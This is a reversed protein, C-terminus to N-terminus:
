LLHIKLLRFVQRERRDCLGAFISESHQVGDNVDADLPGAPKQAYPNGLRSFCSFPNFYAQGM